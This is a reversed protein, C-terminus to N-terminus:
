GAQPPNIVKVTPENPDKKIGGKNVVLQQIIGYITSAGWYIGVGAPLSATFVAIMVPMIYTMMSGAIAMENRKGDKDDQAKKNKAMALKMQIFQLGGIVLPLVYINAKTLDLINLFNTNIDTLSFGSYQSYLLYTNDPNLGSQIVYFLAILFPFQLLIPLCSSLPNIKAEKWLAM